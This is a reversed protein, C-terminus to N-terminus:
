NEGLTPDAGYSALAEGCNNCTEEYWSYSEGCSCRWVEEQEALWTEPGRKRLRVLDIMVNTHHVRGDSQFAWLRECPFDACEGCHPIGKGDACARIECNACGAHIYLADSRCGQCTFGEPDRGRQDAAERL